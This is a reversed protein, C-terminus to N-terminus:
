FREGGSLRLGVVLCLEGRLFLVIPRLAADDRTLPLPSQDPLEAKGPGNGGLVKRFEALTLMWLGALLNHSLSRGIFILIGVALGDLRHFVTGTPICGKGRGFGDRQGGEDAAILTDTFGVPLADANGEVLEFVVRLGADAAIMLGLGSAFKYGGLELVIGGARDIAIDRWLQMCVRDNEIDRLAVIALRACNLRLAEEGGLLKGRRDILGLQSVAESLKAVFNSCSPATSRLDLSVCLFIEVCGAGSALLNTLVKFARAARSLFSGLDSRVRGTVALFNM